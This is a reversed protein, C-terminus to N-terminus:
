DTFIGDATRFCERILGDLTRYPSLEESLIPGSKSSVPVDAVFFRVFWFGRIKDLELLMEDEIGFADLFGAVLDHLSSQSITGTHADSGTESAKWAGDADVAISITRAGDDRVASFEVRAAGGSAAQTFTSIDPMFTTWPRMGRGRSRRPHAAM